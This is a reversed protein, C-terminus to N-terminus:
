LPRANLANIRCGPPVHELPLDLHPVDSTTLLHRRHARGQGVAYIECKGWSGTGPHLECHCPFPSNTTGTCWAKSTVKRTGARSRPACRLSHQFLLVELAHASKVAAYGRQRKPGKLVHINEPQQQLCTHGHVQLVVTTKGTPIISSKLLAAFHQATQLLRPCRHGLIASDGLAGSGIHHHPGLCHVHLCMATCRKLLGLSFHLSGRPSLSQGWNFLRELPGRGVAVNFNDTTRVASGVVEDHRLNVQASAGARLVDEVAHLHQVLQVLVVVEEECPPAADAIPTLELGCRILGELLRGRFEAFDEPALRAVLPSLTGTELLLRQLVLEMVNLVNLHCRGIRQLHLLPLGQSSLLSRKRELAQQTRAGCLLKKGADELRRVYLLGQARELLLREVFGALQKGLDGAAKSPM